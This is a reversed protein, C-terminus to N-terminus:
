PSDGNLARNGCNARDFRFHVRDRLSDHQKGLLCRGNSLDRRGHAIDGLLRSQKCEVSSDFGCSSTFRSVSRASKADGACIDVMSPTRTSQGSPKPSIRADFVVGTRTSRKSPWVCSASSRMSSSMSASSRRLNVPVRRGDPPPRQALQGPASPQAPTSAAGKEDGKDLPDSQGGKAVHKKSVRGGSYNKTLRKGGFLRHQKITVVFGDLYGM